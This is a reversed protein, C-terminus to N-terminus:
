DLPCWSCLIKHRRPTASLTMLLGTHRRYRILADCSPLDRVDPQSSEDIPVATIEAHVRVAAMPGDLTTDDKTKRQGRTSRTPHMIM